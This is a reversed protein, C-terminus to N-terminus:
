CATTGLRWGAFDERDWVALRDAERGVVRLIRIGLIGRDYREARRGARGVDEDDEDVIGPEPRRACEAPRTLCRIGLLERGVAELVVAKVRRREARGGARRQKRAPVM